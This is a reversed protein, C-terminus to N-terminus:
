KKKDLAAKDVFVANVFSSGRLVYGKSLLFQGTEAKEEKTGTILTEIGIV